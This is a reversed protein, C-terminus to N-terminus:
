VRPGVLAAVPLALDRVVRLFGVFVRAPAFGTREEIGPAEYRMLVLGIVVAVFSLGNLFFCWGEGVWAVTFAAIAPGVVRAGNFMSSKLAIAHPLDERGVM